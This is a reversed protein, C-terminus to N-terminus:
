KLIGKEKYYKEAGPHLPILQSKLANEGNKGGFDGAQPHAAAIEDHNEILITLFDYVVQPDLKPDAIIINRTALSQSDEPTNYVTKEITVKQFYPNDKIIKECIEDDLSLLNIGSTLALDSIGRNPVSSVHIGYALVGDKLGTLIDNISLTVINFDEKTMGYAELVMPFYFQSMTGKSVGIKKGKLDRLSKATSNKPVIQTITTLYGGAVFNICGKTSVDFERQGNYAALASDAMCVGLQAIGQQIMRVNEVSGTSIEPKLTYQPFRKQLLAGLASMTIYGVGTSTGSAVTLAVKKAPESSSPATSSSTKESCGAFLTVILSM